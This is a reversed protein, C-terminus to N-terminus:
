GKRNVYVSLANFIMLLLECAVKWIVLLVVFCMVGAFFGLIYNHTVFQNYGQDFVITKMVANSIAIYKGFQFSFYITGIIGTYFLITILTVSKMKGLTIIGDPLRYDEKLGMEGIRELGNIEKTENDM